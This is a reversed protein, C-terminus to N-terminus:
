FREPDSRSDYFVIDKQKMHCGMLPGTMFCLLDNLVLAIRDWVIRRTLEMLQPLNAM